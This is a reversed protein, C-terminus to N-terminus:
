NGPAVESQQLHMGEDMEFAQMEIDLFAQGFGAVLRYFNAGKALRIDILCREYWSAIHKEFFDRQKELTQRNAILIRMTECLAALHDELEASSGIRAIGLRALDARLAALPKEMMFGSLYLSAYPNLLPTGASVFLSDFEEAVADASILGAAATLKEWAAELPNDAQQSPLSDAAALAQLLAHEPPAFLLHALLGYLNSRAQEEAALPLPAAFIAESHTM